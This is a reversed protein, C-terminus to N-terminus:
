AHDLRSTLFGEDDERAKMPVRYAVLTDDPFCMRFLLLGLEM